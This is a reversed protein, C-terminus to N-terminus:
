VFSLSHINCSFPHLWCNGLKHGTWEVNSAESLDLEKALNFVFKLQNLQAIDRVRHALSSYPHKRSKVAPLLSGCFREMAFAWYCWVPGMARIDDAIHLLAHIPLTCVPLRSENYQYYIRYSLGMLNMAVSFCSQSSMGNM